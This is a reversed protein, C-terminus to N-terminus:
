LTKDSISNDLFNKVDYVISNNSKIKSFNIEEFRKHAVTLVIADYTNTSLVNTVELGYEEKFLKKDVWPDYLDIKIGYNSLSKILDVVKTNRFDPCNEKFTVGLILINSKKINFDNNILLKIIESSIFEGM